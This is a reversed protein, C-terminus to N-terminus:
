HGIKSHTLLTLNVPNFPYHPPLLLSVSSELSVASSPAPPFLIFFPFPHPPPPPSFFPRATTIQFVVMHHM